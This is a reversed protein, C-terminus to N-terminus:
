SNKTDCVVLFSGLIMILLALYFQPMPREGLILLCFVVGFFPATSFYAGTKSAGLFRQAYIYLSVSLGYSIFGLLLTLFLWNLQPLKEGAIFAIIISGIGSCIGKIITIQRTDKISLQRTFNNELGWCVASLLVLVSGINFIFSGRGEFTLIICAITILIIATFLKKSITEKFIFYAALLTAALEFNGLLSANAGTTKSIGAMLLIIASIDLFVMCTAYPLEKRTLSLEPTSKKIIMTVLLGLGAGLYLLGGMIVPQVYNGSLKACPVCIAFMIASLIASLVAITKNKLHKM